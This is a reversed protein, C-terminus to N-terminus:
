EVLSAAGILGADDGIEAVKINISSKNIVKDRLNNCIIEVISKNNLIVSGGLVIVEPDVVSIINAIGKSLNDCLKGVIKLALKNGDYYLKFLELANVTRGFEKSAMRELATGSCQGELGGTNLGSHSYEDENIIMNCIEGASSNAGPIINNNFIFAGGVGTSVTIYFSSQAGMASGKLNEALGAVNADNNVKTKLGTKSEYYEKINFGHWKKLNPPNLIVGNYIDLPGPCGIGIGNIRSVKLNENIFEISKSLNEMPGLELNNEYKYKKIIELESNLLAIRINTGGIDIGILYDM